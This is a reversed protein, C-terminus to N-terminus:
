APLHVDLSWIIRLRPRRQVASAANPYTRSKPVSDCWQVSALARVSRLVELRAIDYRSVTRAGFAEPLPLAAAAHAADRQLAAARQQAAWLSRLAASLEKVPAPVSASEGAARQFRANGAEDDQDPDATSSRKSACAIAADSVVADLQLLSEFVSHSAGVVRTSSTTRLQM